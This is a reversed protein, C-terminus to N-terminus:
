ILFSSENQFVNINCVTNDTPNAGSSQPQKNAPGTKCFFSHEQLLPALVSSTEPSPIWSTAPIFCFSPFTSLFLQFPLLLINLSSWLLVSLWQFWLCPTALGSSVMLHSTFVMQLLLGLRSLFYFCFGYCLPYETEPWLILFDLWIDWLCVLSIVRIPPNISCSPARFIISNVPRCRKVDSLSPRDIFAM